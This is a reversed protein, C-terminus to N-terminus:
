RDVACYITRIGNKNRVHRHLSPCGLVLCEVSRLCPSWASIPMPDNIGDIPWRRPQHEHMCIRSTRNMRPREGCPERQMDSFLAEIMACARACTWPQPSSPLFSSIPAFFRPRFFIAGCPWCGQCSSLGRHTVLTTIRCPMRVCLVFGCSMNRNGRAESVVGTLVYVDRAVACENRLARLSAPYLDSGARTLWTLTSIRAIGDHLVVSIVVVDVVLVGTHLRAQIGPQSTPGKCADM